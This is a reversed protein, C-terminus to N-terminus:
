LNGLFYEVYPNDLTVSGDPHIESAPDTINAVFNNLLWTPSHFKHPFKIRAKLVAKCDPHGLHSGWYYMAQEKDNVGYTLEHAAVCHTAKQMALIIAKALELENNPQVTLGM